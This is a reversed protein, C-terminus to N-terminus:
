RVNVCWRPSGTASDSIGPLVVDAAIGDPLDLYLKAVGKARRWRSRIPGMPTPVTVDVRDVAPDTLVPAFRIGRWGAETQVIGGVTAALHKIPHASWAHSVSGRGPAWQFVEWTGGYPVMPAYNRRIHDVVERGHAAHTMVDYVYTVWFSSPVADTLPEGQLYPLLRKAIMAKHSAKRLGCLIAAAQSHISWAKLPRGKEDLGDCFLGAKEDWLARNILRKFVRYEQALRAAPEKMQALSALHALKELM